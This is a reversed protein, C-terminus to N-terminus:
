VFLKVKNELFALKRQADIIFADEKKPDALKLVQRFASVAEENRNLKAYANGLSLHVPVYSPDIMLAEKYIEVADDEMGDSTLLKGLNHFTNIDRNGLELSKRYSEIAEGRRGLKSLTDALVEYLSADDPDLAIATRYVDVAEERKGLDYLLPAYNKLLGRSGPDLNLGVDYAFGAEDFQSKDEYRVAINNLKQLMQGFDPGYVTIPLDGNVFLGSYGMFEDGGLKFRINREGPNTAFDALELLSISPGDKNWSINNDNLIHNNWPALMDMYEVEGKATVLLLVSHQPIDGVLYGIGLESLFSGGLMSAAVCNIERNMVIESPSDAGEEYPINSIAKQINHALIREQKAIEEKDKQSRIEDMEAKLGDINLAGRLTNERRKWTEISERISVPITDYPMNSKLLEMGRRFISGVLERRPTEIAQKTKQNIENIISVDIPTVSEWPKLGTRNHEAGSRKRKLQKEFAKEAVRFFQDLTNQRIKEELKVDIEGYENKAKKIRTNYLKEGALWKDVERTEELSLESLAISEIPVDVPRGGGTLAVGYTYFDRALNEAIERGEKIGDARKAFYIGAHEFMSGLRRIEKIKTGQRELNHSLTDKDVAGVVDVMEWLHLDKPLRLTKRGDSRDALINELGGGREWDNREIFEPQIHDNVRCWEIFFSQAVPEAFSTQEITKRTDFGMEGSNEM